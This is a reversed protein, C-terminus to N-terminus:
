EGSYMKSFGIKALEKVNDFCDNENEITELTFWRFTTGSPKSFKERDIWAFFIWDLHIHGPEIDEALLFQPMLLFESRTDSVITQDEISYFEVESVAFEEIIERRAAEEPTENKEIHGGPPLWTKLKQHWHLLTRPLKKDFLYTTATFHKDIDLPLESM